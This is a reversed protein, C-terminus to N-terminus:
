KKLLILVFNFFETVLIKIKVQSFVVDPKLAVPVEQITLGDKEGCRKIFELDFLFRNITTELFENKGKQNFGKLGCQTDTVKLKLFLAMLKRFLKSIIKRLFPTKSYYINDRSGLAVDAGSFLAEYIAIISEQEYPFDVDTFINFESQSFQVAKRLAYGKGNNDPYDVYTFCGINEKLFDINKTTVNQTSGDNVLVMGVSCQNLEKQISLYNFLVVKEWGLPPNYCPIIINLLPTTM